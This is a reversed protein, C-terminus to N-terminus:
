SRDEDFDSVPGVAPVSGGIDAAEDHGSDGERCRNVPAVAKGGTKGGEEVQQCAREESLAAGKKTM